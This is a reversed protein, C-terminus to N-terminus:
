EMALNAVFSSVISNDLNNRRRPPFRGKRQIDVFEGKGRSYLLEETQAAGRAGAEVKQLLQCLEVRLLHKQGRTKKVKEKKWPEAERAASIGGM